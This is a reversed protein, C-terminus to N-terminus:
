EQPDTETVSVDGSASVVVEYGSYTFVVHGASTSGSCPMSVVLADLADPDIAEYLPPHVDLTSVGKADAVADVVAESVNQAELGNSSSELATTGHNVVSCRWGRM